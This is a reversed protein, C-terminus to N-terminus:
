KAIRYHERTTNDAALVILEIDVGWEVHFATSLLKQIESRMRLLGNLVRQPEGWTRSDYISIRLAFAEPLMMVSKNEVEVSVAVGLMRSIENLTVIEITDLSTQLMRQAEEGEVDLDGSLIKRDISIVAKM